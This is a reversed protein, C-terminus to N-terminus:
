SLVGKKGPAFLAAVGAMFVLGRALALRDDGHRLESVLLAASTATLLAGGVRRTSRPGMLLGGVVEAAAAARMNDRSWGLHRFMQTYRKDGSLKDGGAVAVAAGIAPYLYSMLREEISRYRRGAAHKGSAM